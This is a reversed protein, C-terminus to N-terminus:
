RRTVVLLRPANDSAKPSAILESEFEMKDLTDAWEMVKAAEDAGGEHGPYIVISMRGGACLCNAASELAPVTTEPRTIISKDGRPLYGLNFMVAKIHGQWNGPMHDDMNEHGTRVLRVRTLLGAEGLMLNTRHHAMEQIDFGIVHGDPGVRDALFFTDLGNGVTADIAIDGPEIVEAIMKQAMATMSLPMPETPPNM